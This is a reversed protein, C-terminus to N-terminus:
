APFLSFMIIQLTKLRSLFWNNSLPLETWAVNADRKWNAGKDIEKGIEREFLNTQLHQRRPKERVFSRDGIIKAIRPKKSAEQNKPQLQNKIKWWEKEIIVICIVLFTKSVMNIPFSPFM